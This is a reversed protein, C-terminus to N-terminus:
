RRTIREIRQSTAPHTSLYHGLGRDNEDASTIRGLIDALHRRPIGHRDLLEVAFDDAELEFTRSYKMDALFTPLAGALASISALDGTVTAILVPTILSQLWSRLSHRHHIHGLEHALVALLEEDCHALAVVEDTLIVIGSPLALANPGLDPSARFELRVEGDIM